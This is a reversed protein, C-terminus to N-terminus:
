SHNRFANAASNGGDDARKECIFRKSTEKMAKKIKHIMAHRAKGTLRKKGAKKKKHYLIFYFTLHIM